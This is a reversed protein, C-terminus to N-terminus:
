EDPGEAEACGACLPEGTYRSFHALDTEIWRGCTHCCLTHDNVGLSTSNELGQIYRDWSSPQRAAHQHHM